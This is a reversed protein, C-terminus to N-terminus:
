HYQDDKWTDTTWKYEFGRGTKKLDFQWKQKQTIHTIWTNQINVKVLYLIQLYLGGSMPQTKMKNIPEETCFNKKTEHLRM